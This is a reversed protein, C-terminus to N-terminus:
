NQFDDRSKGPEDLPEEGDLYDDTTMMRPRPRGQFPDNGEEAVAVVRCTDCMQILRLQADTQFMAHKGKLKALVREVTSKTGFPKGCSVCHFPEERKIIEPRLASPDFNYRPELHIVKEPCTAVCIGCQVCVAETFSVQPRDPNDSLAGTPCAGVCSLCLTCGDVDINLRGYPAGSPLSIIDKPEPAAVRLKSLALRAVERKAGLLSFPEVPISHHPSLEYLQGEVVDPDAEVVLHVRQGAYGLGDLFGAMLAVQTELAALEEPHQPSALVVVHEAGLALAVAMTEHGLQHVSFLSM